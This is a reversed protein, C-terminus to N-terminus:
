RKNRFSNVATLPFQNGDSRFTCMYQLPEPIIVALAAIIVSEKYDLNFLVSIFLIAFATSYSWLLDALYCNIFGSIAYSPLSVPFITRFFVSVYSEPRFIIYFALGIVLPIMINLLASLFISNDRKGTRVDLWGSKSKM